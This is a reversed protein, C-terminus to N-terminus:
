QRAVPTSGRYNTSQQHGARAAELRFDEEDPSSSKRAPTNNMVDIPSTQPIIPNYRWCDRAFHGERNCSYCIMPQRPATRRNPHSRKCSIPSMINERTRTFSTRQRMRGDLDDLQQFIRDQREKPERKSHHQQIGQDQVSLMRTSFEQLVDRMVTGVAAAIQSTMEANILGKDIGRSTKTGATRDQQRPSILQSNTTHQQELRTNLQCDASSATKEDTMATNSWDETSSDVRQHKANEVRSTPSYSKSCKEMERDNERRYTAATTLSKPQDSSTCLRPPESRSCMGSRVGSYTVPM